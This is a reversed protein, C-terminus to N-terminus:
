KFEMSAYYSYCLERLNKANDAQMIKLPLFATIFLAFCDTIPETHKSKLPYLQTYKSFYEKIYLIWKYQGLPEHRM